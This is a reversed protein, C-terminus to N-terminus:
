SLLSTVVSKKHSLLHHLLFNLYRDTHTQKRYVFTEIAGDSDHTLLVNLIPLVGDKGKEVMFQVHNNVSNVHDHFSSVSDALLLMCTDDVYGKWFRPLPDFLTLALEEIEEM